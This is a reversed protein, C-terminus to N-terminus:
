GARGRSRNAALIEERLERPLEQLPDPAPRATYFGQILDVGYDIVAWLEESTEVGEAITLIRNAQAFDIINRVFMQKNNDKHIETILFRDIKIVQPKYRLLNVINSYGTGYDDVALQCASEEDGLAKIRLLEEDSIDNQETIEITCMRLVDHYLDGIEAYDSENLFHGPITNIFVHKGDFDERHESVFRLVNRFTAIEIDYLRRYAKATDLIELPNMHIDGGTRMLAEYAYVGGTRANVIPQFHYIFLDRRILIDFMRYKDESTKEEKLVPTNGAKLRNLYLEGNAVKIFSILDGDWGPEVVTCGCNVEVFYDKGLDDNYSETIGFFVSVSRTIIEGIDVDPEEINLVVFENESIRALMSNMPNALQLAESVIRVAEEADTLGYNEYIFRYQPICYVSVAMRKQHIEASRLETEHLLGRMNMLDTLADRYRMKQMDSTLHEQELRSVLTGFALNVIRFFRHLRHATNQIDETKMVYYGFVKDIVYISQFIYMGPSKFSESLSPYMESLDFVEQNKKIYNEDCSSLIIMKETFPNEPDTIKNKRAAVLFDSNLALSSGPLINRYLTEGFASMDTREILRDAWDYLVNEHSRISETLNYLRSANSRYSLDTERRCGCSESIFLEYQESARYPAEGREVAGRIMEFCKRALGPVDEQCTTLRPEHYSVSEIGDFGTVIVDEPVRYGYERLRDCVVSAMTDNACVIAEPIRKESVWADITRTVPLEWYDCYAINEEKLALGYRALTDRCSRLRRESNEEGKSGAIFGIEKVHHIEVIHEVLKSFVDYSDRTLTFCGEHEGFLILVPIGRKKAKDILEDVLERDFFCHNAVVLMDLVDFNIAKYIASAGKEYKDKRYFDLFSNFVLLRYDTTETEHYLLQLFEKTGEDQVKTLCVGIMKIGNLM